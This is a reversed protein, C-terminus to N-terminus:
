LRTLTYIYFYFSIMHFPRVMTSVTLHLSHENDRLTVAQHIWGRPMYLVDGAELVVDMIPESLESANFDRSSDRPLPLVPHYIKWRKKGELQLIIAEIDDYHPSFGQSAKGPTLYANAGVMCGFESELLSLLHHVTPSYLHPCLLRVSCGNEFNTWVDTSKAVIADEIKGSDPLPDLTLRTVDGNRESKDCKTVNLDVGYKMNKNLIMDEIDSKSLINEFFSVDNRAVHLCKKEWYERYFQGVSVNAGLLSQLLARARDMAPEVEDIGEGGFLIDHPSRLGTADKADDIKDPCVSSENMKSSVPLKARKCKEVDENGKDNDSAKILPKQQQRRKKQRKRAARSGGSGSGGREEASKPM